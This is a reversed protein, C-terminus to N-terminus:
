LYLLMGLYSLINMGNFQNKLMHEIRENTPILDDFADQYSHINHSLDDESHSYSIESTIIPEDHNIESFDDSSLVRSIQNRNRNVLGSARRCQISVSTSFKNKNFGIPTTVAESCMQLDNVSTTHVSKLHKTNNYSYSSPDNTTTSSLMRNRVFTLYEYPLSERLIAAASPVSEQKFVACAVDVQKKRQADTLVTKQKKPIYVSSEIYKGNALLKIEANFQDGNTALLYDSRKLGPFLHNLFKHKFNVKNQFCLHISILKENSSTSTDAICLYQIKSLNETTTLQVFPYQTGISMFVDIYSMSTTINKLFFNARNFRDNDEKNTVSSEGQPTKKEKEVNSEERVTTKLTALNNSAIRGSLVDMSEGPTMNLLHQQNNITSRRVNTSHNTSLHNVNEAIEQKRLTNFEVSYAPTSTAVPHFILASGSVLSSRFSCPCRTCSCASSCNGYPCSSTASSSKAIDMSCVVNSTSDSSVLHSRLAQEGEKAHEGGKAQEGEKAHEKEEHEILHDFCYKKTCYWCAYDLPRNSCDSGNNFKFQCRDAYSYAKENLGPDICLKETNTVISDSM